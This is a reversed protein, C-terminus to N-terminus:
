GTMTIMHSLTRLNLLSSQCAQPGRSGRPHHYLEPFAPFCSLAFSIMVRRCFTPFYIKLLPGNASSWTSTMLHSLHHLRHGGSGAKAQAVSVNLDWIPEGLLTSPYRLTQSKPRMRCCPERIGRRLRCPARRGANQHPRRGRRAVKALAAGRLRGRAGCFWSGACAPRAPRPAHMGAAAAHRMSGPSRRAPNILHTDPGGHGPSGPARAACAARRLRAAPRSHVACVPRVAAPVQRPAM